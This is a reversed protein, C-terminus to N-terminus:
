LQLVQKEEVFTVVEEGQQEQSAVLIMIIQEISHVLLNLMNYLLLVQVQVHIRTQFIFLTALVM